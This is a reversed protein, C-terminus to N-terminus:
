CDVHSIPLVEDSPKMKREDNALHEVNQSFARV